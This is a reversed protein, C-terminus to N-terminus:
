KGIDSLHFKVIEASQVRSLHFRRLQNSDNFRPYSLDSRRADQKDIDRSIASSSKYNVRARFTNKLIYNQALCRKTGDSVRILSRFAVAMNM